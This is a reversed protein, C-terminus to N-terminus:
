DNASVKEIRRDDPGEPHVVDKLKIEFVLASYGRIEGRGTAGYGMGWPIYIMCHSGQPIHQFATVWGSVVSNDSVQFESAEYYDDDLKDDFVTGNILRGQYNVLLYDDYVPVTGTGKEIYRVYVYDSNNYKLVDEDQGGSNIKYNLYVGWEGSANNRAVNAISDIYQENRAQWNAYETDEVVTDKSCSGLGLSLLVFLSALWFINKKM